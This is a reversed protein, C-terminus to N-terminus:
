KRISMVFIRIIESSCFMKLSFKTFKVVSLTEACSIVSSIPCLLRLTCSLASHYLSNRRFACIDCIFQHKEILIFRLYIIYTKIYILM